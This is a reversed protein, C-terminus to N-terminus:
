THIAGEYPFLASSQAKATQGFAILTIALIIIQKLQIM